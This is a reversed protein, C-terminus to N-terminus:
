PNAAPQEGAAHHWGGGLAKCLGIRAQLRALQYQTFQDRAASLNRQAELVTQFEGAGERYRAQAGALAQGSHKLNDSQAQQQLNLNQIAALSTEVDAYANLIAARYNALLEQEHAEAEARAATRRGGDFITQVLSAAPAISLGTGPVTLNIAQFGPNQVSGTVTLALSPFMAARAVALDAHAAYLSAEASMLDPRRTLLQAPLGPAVQPEHLDALPLGTVDFGEPLRGSLVALAARHNIEQAALQPILLQANAVTARQLALDVATAAGAEYRAQVVELVKQAAELSARAALLRERLALVQFYQDAVAASVTLALTAQDARSANAVNLAAGQAARRRGWFDIEYSASLLVGYDNEHASTGHGRGSVSTFNAAASVAPLLAGGAARSRADAQRVRTEAAALDQNASSAAEILANLEDSGFERYWQASPWTPEAQPATYQWQQPSQPAIRLPALPSCASIFGIGLLAWCRVRRSHAAFWRGCLLTLRQWATASTKKPNNL